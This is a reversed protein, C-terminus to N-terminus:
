TKKNWCFVTDSIRMLSQIESTHAESRQMGNYAPLGARALHTPAVDATSCLAQSRPAQPAQQPDRWIFPTRILGQYHVPGKWLLQHDGFFDGHDSTFIVVTNDDLGEDHLAQM